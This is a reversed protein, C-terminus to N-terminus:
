VIHAIANLNPDKGSLDHNDIRIQWTLNLVFHIRIAESFLICSIANSNQFEGGRDVCVARRGEGM